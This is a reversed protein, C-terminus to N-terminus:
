PDDAQCRGNSREVPSSFFVGSGRNKRESEMCSSLGVGVFFHSGAQDLFVFSRVVVKSRKVLGVVLGGGGIWVSLPSLASLPPRV